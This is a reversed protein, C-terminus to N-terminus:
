PVNHYIFVKWIWFKCTLFYFKTLSGLTPAHPKVSKIKWRRFVFEGESKAFMDVAVSVANTYAVSFRLVVHAIPVNSSGTIILHSPPLPKKLFDQLCLKHKTTRIYYKDINETNKLKKKRDPSEKTIKLM